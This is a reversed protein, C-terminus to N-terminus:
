TRTVETHLEGVIPPLTQFKEDYIRAATMEGDKVQLDVSIM